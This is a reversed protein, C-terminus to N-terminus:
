RIYFRNRVTSYYYKRTTTKSWPPFLATFATLSALTATQEHRVSPSWHTPNTILVSRAGRPGREAPQTTKRWKRRDQLETRHCLPSINKARTRNWRRRLDAGTHNSHIPSLSLLKITRLSVWVWLIGKASAALAGHYSRRSRLSMAGLQFAMTLNTASCLFVCLHCIWFFSKVMFEANDVTNVQQKNM